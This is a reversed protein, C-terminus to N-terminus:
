TKGKIVCNIMAKFQPFCQEGRGRIYPSASPCVILGKRDDFADGVLRSTEEFIEEPSAEYMRQIQINGELCMRGRAITKAERATINGQPPPEFPHLVDAGMEIFGRIVDKISGHSHIHIKGGMNHIFDIIPKDYRVNFDYFDKPGHLPPVLYEEGAMSFYPGVKAAALFELKKLTKRMERECLAHILNRETVTMIAFLESGFLEAVTGAPNLGACVSVIGTDGARREMKLFSETENIIEPFPLSLYKEADDGTKLLYTEHLGPQGALSELRTDELNGAPTHLTRRIRRFEASHEEATVEINYTTERPTWLFKLESNEMLYKKLRDYTPDDQPFYDRCYVAPRDMEEHFYARRLREKRTISM